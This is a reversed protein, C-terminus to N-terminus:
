TAKPTNDPLISIFEREPLLVATLPGGVIGCGTDLCIIHDGIYPRCSNQMYHGCVVLNRPGKISFVRKDGIRALSALSRDDPRDPCFGVHSVLLNGLEFSPLLTELFWRHRQPFGSAFAARVDGEVNPIYCALTQVGGLAALTSFAGGNLYDLLALDHNGALFKWRDPESLKKTSLVELVAASDTGGNIYDGVFVVPRKLVDLRSLMRSLTKIDGHIDGVIALPSM